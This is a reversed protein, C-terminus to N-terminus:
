EGFYRKKLGLCYEYMEKFGYQRDISDSFADSLGKYFSAAGDLLTKILEERPLLWKGYEGGEGVTMLVWNPGQVKIAIPVPQDPLYMRGSGKEMFSEIAQLLYDWYDKIFDGYEETLILQGHYSLEIYGEFREFDLYPEAKRLTATDDVPIEAPFSSNKFHIVPFYIYTQVHLM